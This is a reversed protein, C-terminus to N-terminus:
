KTKIEFATLKAELQDPLLLSIADDNAFATFSSLALKRRAQSYVKRSPVIIWLRIGACQAKQANDIVHRATTEVECGIEYSEKVAFLDLYTTIDQSDYRYETQVHWKQQCFVIRADEVMKNHFVSGRM